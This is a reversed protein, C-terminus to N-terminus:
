SLSTRSDLCEVVPLEVDFDDVEEMPKEKAIAFLIPRGKGLHNIARSRM